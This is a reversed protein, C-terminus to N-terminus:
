TGSLDGLNQNKIEVSKMEEEDSRNPDLRLGKRMNYILTEKSVAGGYFGEFLSKMEAASLSAELFGTDPKITVSSESLFMAIQNYVVNMALSVAEVVGSLSATESMYRLKVTDAAESGRSSNDLFRASMSALQGQKEVLAKELSLLGQGTFELYKADGGKEPLILFKSSGIYLDDSSNGGILVPTPLGTFHRGHELDASSRYHSLNINVIDLSPPKSKKIGLGNPHIVTFPIYNLAKNKIKPYIYEDVSNKEDYHLIQIYGDGSLRLERYRVRFECEYDDVYHTYVERLMVMVLVNDIYRWNIIDEANYISIYPDGGDKPFDVLLGVRGQLLVESLSTSYIEAFQTTDSGKFYKALGEPYVLDPVKSTAMGVLASISKSTISYFLARDVYAKYDDNSQGRLRPLYKEGGLKIVEEGDFADRCKTRLSALADYEPHTLSYKPVMFKGKLFRKRHM